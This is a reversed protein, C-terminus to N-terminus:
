LCYEFGAAREGQASRCSLDFRWGILGADHGDADMTYIIKIITTLSIGYCM